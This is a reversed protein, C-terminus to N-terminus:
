AQKDGIEIQQRTFVTRRHCGSELIRTHVDERELHFEHALHWADTSHGAKSFKKSLDQGYGEIFKVGITPWLPEDSDFFATADTVPMALVESIDMARVASGGDAAALRGLSGLVHGVMSQVGISVRNVGAAAYETLM